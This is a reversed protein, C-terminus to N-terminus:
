KNSEFFRKIKRKNKSSIGCEKMLDDFTDERCSNVIEDTERDIELFNLHEVIENIKRALDDCGIQNLLNTQNQKLPNM